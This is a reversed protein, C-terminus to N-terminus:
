PKAEYRHQVVRSIDVAVEEGDRTTTATYTLEIRSTAATALLTQRDWSGSATAVIRSNPFEDRAVVTARLENDEIAQLRFEMPSDSATESWVWTAGAGVPENPVLLFIANVSLLEAPWQPPVATVAPAHTLEVLAGNPALVWQWDGPDPTADLGSTNIISPSFRATLEGSDGTEALELRLDYEATMRQDVAQNGVSGQLESSAGVSVTGSDLRDIRLVSRPESGPDLVRIGVTPLATPLAARDDQGTAQGAAGDVSERDAGSCAGLVMVAPLALSRPLKLM